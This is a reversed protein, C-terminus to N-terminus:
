FRLAVELKPIIQTYSESITSETNSVIKQSLTTSHYGISAGLIFKETLNMHYGFDATYSSGLINEETGSVTRTGTINPCYTVEFKWNKSRNFYILLTAGFETVSVEEAAASAPTHSKNWLSYSPGLVIYANRGIGAGVFFSGQMRNYAIKSESHDFTTYGGSGKFVLTACAQEGFFLFFVLVTLYNM